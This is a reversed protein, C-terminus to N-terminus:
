YNLEINAEEKTDAYTTFGFKPLIDEEFERRSIGLLERAQKLGIKNQNYLLACVAEKVYEQSINIPLDMEIHQLQQM